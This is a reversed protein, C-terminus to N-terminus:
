IGKLENVMLIDDRYTGDDYKNANKIRGTEVFGLSEYLHKARENGEIVTLEAQEYGHEKILELLRNLTLRGLGHGTYNQYFAIGISARHKARRSTGVREFSANGVYQGDEFVLVLYGTESSNRAEIFKIEEELTLKVEDGYTMLFPTESCVTKLYEVLTEADETRPGRLTIKRGNLEYTEEQLFM